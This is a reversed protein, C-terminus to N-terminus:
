PRLVTFIDTPYMKAHCEGNIGNHYDRVKKASNNQIGNEKNNKISNGIGEQEQKLSEAVSAVEKDFYQSMSDKLRKSFADM